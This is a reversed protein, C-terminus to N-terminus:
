GGEGEEWSRGGRASLLRRGKFHAGGGVLKFYARMGGRLHRRRKSKNESAQTYFVSIGPLGEALWNGVCGPGLCKCRGLQPAAAAAM